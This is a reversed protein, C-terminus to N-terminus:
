QTESSQYLAYCKRRRNLVLSKVEKNVGFWKPRYSNFRIILKYYDIYFENSGLPNLKSIKNMFLYIARRFIKFDKIVELIKTYMSNYEGEGFLDYSGSLLKQINKHSKIQSNIMTSLRSLDYLLGNMPLDSIIRM